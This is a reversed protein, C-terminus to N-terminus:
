LILENFKLLDLNSLAPVTIAKNCQLSRCDTLQRAHTEDASHRTSTQLIEAM